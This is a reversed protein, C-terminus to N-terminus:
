LQKLCPQVSHPHALKPLLNTKNKLTSFKRRTYETLVVATTKRKIATSM